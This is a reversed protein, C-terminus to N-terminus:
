KNTLSICPGAAELYWPISIVPLSGVAQSHSYGASMGNESLGCLLTGNKPSKYFVFVCEFVPNTWMFFYVPSM